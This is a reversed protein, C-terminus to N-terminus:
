VLFVKCVNDFPGADFPGGDLGRSDLQGASSAHRQAPLRPQFQHVPRQRAASTYGEFVFCLPFGCLIEYIFISCCM